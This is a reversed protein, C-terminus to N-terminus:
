YLRRSHSYCMIWIDLNLPFYELYLSNTCGPIAIVLCSGDDINANIDYEVYNSNKCGVVECSGDDSNALANYNLAYDITCGYIVLTACSGDDFNALANFEIYNPNRVDKLLHKVPVMMLM